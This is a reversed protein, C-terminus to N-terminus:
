SNMIISSDRKPKTEQKKPWTPVLMPVQRRYDAYSQGFVRELDREEFRIAVLIYATMAGAFLTQGVSMSPTIWFSMLWGVYLPHRVLRYLMPTRFPLQRYQDGKFHLWVQRTGFLDFHNILFSTGPVLFWGIANLTWLFGRIYPNEFDWLLQPMPQWFYFMAIMVLNSIMVYTSREIAPHIFHTWWSKFAPRAMVSHQIGFCAVLLANVVPAWVSTTQSGNIPAPVLIGCVFGILYLYVGFFLAYAAIGYLLFAIRQM